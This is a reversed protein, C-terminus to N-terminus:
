EHHLVKKKKKQLCAIIFLWAVGLSIASDAINFVPFDYGWFKFHIFDIVFGYLFYDLINGIAGTIILVFPLEASKKSNFFILYLIMGLVVVIRLYLLVTQFQSFVGWAAGRNIALSLSCEIGFFNRFVEIGGYPYLGPTYESFPFFNFIYAKTWFDLFLVGMGLAILFAIKAYKKM